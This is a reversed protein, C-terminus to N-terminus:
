IKLIRDSDIKAKTNFTIRILLYKKKKIKTKEIQFNFNQDWNSKESLFNFSLDVHHM